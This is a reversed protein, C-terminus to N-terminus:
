LFQYRKVDFSTQVANNKCLMSDILLSSSGASLTFGLNAHGINYFLNEYINSNGIVPLRDSSIPRFGCWIDNFDEIEIIENFLNNLRNKIFKIRKYIIKDNFGVFDYLGSVRVYGNFPTLVIKSDHDIICKDLKLKKCNFSYGKLPKIPLNINFNKNLDEVYAGSTVIYKDSIIKNKNTTLQAIKAESFEVNQISENTLLKFNKNKKLNELIINIVNFANGSMDDPFYIASFNNDRYDAIFKKIDHNSIIQHNLNYKDFTKILNQVKNFSSKKRFLQITGTKRIDIKKIDKALNTFEKNSQYALQFLDQYNKDNSKTLNYFFDLCWLPNKIFEKLNYGIPSNQSYLNKLLYRFINIDCVSFIHSFSLQGGNQFSAGMGPTQNKEILCVSYNNKIAYYAALVGIIGGGLITIDKRM